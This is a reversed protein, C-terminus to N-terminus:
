KDMGDINTFVPLHEMLIAYIFYANSWSISLKKKVNAHNAITQRWHKYM